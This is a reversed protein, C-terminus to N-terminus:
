SFEQQRRGRVEEMWDHYTATGPPRTMYLTLMLNDKEAMVEPSDLPNPEIKKLGDRRITKKM